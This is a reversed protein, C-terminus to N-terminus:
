AKLQAALVAQWLVAASREWSFRALNEHGRVVLQQRLDEEHWLRAIGVAISDPNHPDVFLAGGEGAVEPMSSVSATLVPCGSAQAEVIPIGFGEFYPVYVTACAAAYLDALEADAVRGTFHVATQHRMRQYADLIPGAKWAKRGM